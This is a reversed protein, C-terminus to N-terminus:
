GRRTRVVLLLFSTEIVDVGAIVLAVVFPLPHGLAWGAGAAVAAVGLFALRIARVMTPWDARIGDPEATLRRLAAGFLLLAVAASAGVLGARVVPPPSALGDLLGSTWGLATGAVVAVGGLALPLVATLNRSVLAADGSRAGRDV